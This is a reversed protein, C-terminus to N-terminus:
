VLRVAIAEQHQRGVFEIDFYTEDLWERVARQEHLVNCEACDIEDFLLVTGKRFNLNRLAFLTPSYTDLDFHVFAAPERFKQVFKPITEEIRGVVFKGNLPCRPPIGDRNFSGKDGHTRWEELLGYFWDFGYVDFPYFRSCLKEFSTGDGVGLELLPGDGVADLIKEVGTCNTFHEMEFFKTLKLNKDM